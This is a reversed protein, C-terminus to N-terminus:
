SILLRQSYAMSPISSSFSCCINSINKDVLFERDNDDEKRIESIPRNEDDTEIVAKEAEGKMKQQLMQM